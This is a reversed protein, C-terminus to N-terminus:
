RRRCDGSAAEAALALDCGDTSVSPPPQFGHWLSFGLSWAVCVVLGKGVHHYMFVLAVPSETKKFNKADTM